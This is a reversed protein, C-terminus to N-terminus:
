NKGERWCFFIKKQERQARWQARPRPLWNNVAPIVKVRRTHRDWSGRGWRTPPSLSVASIVNQRLMSWVLILMEISHFEGWWGGHLALVQCSWQHPESTEPWHQLWLRIFINGLYGPALLFIFYQGGRLRYSCGSYFLFSTRPVTFFPDM